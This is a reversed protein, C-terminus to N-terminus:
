VVEEDYKMEFINKFYEVVVDFLDGLGFGYIGLILYLEGFGFLYFDYINVRMEINDLKNVVLVVFKKMCYLIKVVEEDVVIVGECGNVMFIIVDVEDM